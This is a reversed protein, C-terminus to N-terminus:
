KEQKNLKRKKKKKKKKIIKKVWGRHLQNKLQSLEITNNTARGREQLMSQHTPKCSRERLEIAMPLWALGLIYYPM